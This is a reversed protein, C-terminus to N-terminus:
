ETSRDLVALTTGAIHVPRHKPLLEDVARMVGPWGPHYDHWVITGRRVLRLAKATDSKAFAYDHCADIFAFDMTGEYPTYDFTTSDGWLQHIRQAQPTQAFRRGVGGGRINEVEDLIIAPQDENISGPDLDLTFVEAQPAHQALHATTAGDFTGFEFIRRPAKLAVMCGLCYLEMPTANSRTFRIEGLEMPKAEAAPFLDLFHRSELRARHDFTYGSRLLTKTFAFSRGGRLDGMLNALIRGIGGLWYKTSM